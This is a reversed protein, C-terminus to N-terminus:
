SWEGSGLVFEASRRWGALLWCVAGVRLSPGPLRSAAAWWDWPIPGWPPKPGPGYAPNGRLSLVLKRGPDRRVAILGAEVKESLATKTTTRGLGLSTALESVSVRPDHRFRHAMSM